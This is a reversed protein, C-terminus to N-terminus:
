LLCVFCVYNGRKQPGVQTRITLSYAALNISAQVKQGIEGRRIMKGVKAWKQGSKYDRKNARM